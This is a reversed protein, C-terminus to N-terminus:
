RSAASRLCPPADAFASAGNTKAHPTPCNPNYPIPPWHRARLPPPITRPRRRQGRPCNPNHSAQLNNGPVSRPRSRERGAASAARATPITRPRSTTAPRPVPAPDNEAQSQSKRSRRSSRQWDTRGTAARAFVTAAEGSGVGAGRMAVGCPSCLISSPALTHFPGSAQGKMHGPSAHGFRRGRLAPSARGPGAGRMAVGCPSCLISSPALTHFPGSAQGKM